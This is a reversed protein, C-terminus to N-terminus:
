LVFVVGWEQDMELANRCQTYQHCDKGDSGMCMQCVQYLCSVSANGNGSYANFPPVVTSDNEGPTLPPEMSTNAQYVLDGSIDFLQLLNPKDPDPYSLLVSYNVLKVEDFVGYGMWQEYIM